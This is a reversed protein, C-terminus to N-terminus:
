RKQEEGPVLTVVIPRAESGLAEIVREGHLRFVNEDSVLVVRSARGVLAPLRSVLDRGIEM